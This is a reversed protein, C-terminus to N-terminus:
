AVTRVRGSGLMVAHPCHSTKLDDESCEENLKQKMAFM